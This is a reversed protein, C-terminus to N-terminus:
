FKGGSGSHRSGSSSSHTRTGGSSHHSSSSSSSSSPPIYVKSVDKYLFTDRCDTLEFSGDRFYDKAGHQMSVSTLQRKVASCYIFAIVAGGVIAYIIWKAEPMIERQSTSGYPDNSNRNNQTNQDNNQKAPPADYPKGSKAQRIYDQSINIYTDFADYYRGASLLPTVRNWMQQQGYDTYVSIGFGTGSIWRDRTNMAILMVFGDKTQHFGFGNYDYYDDAYEMPTRSGLSHLTVIVIDVSEAESISDLRELLKKEEEDSLIDGYDVLRPKQRTDPIKRQNYYEDPIGAGAAAAPLACCFAVAAAFLLAFLKRIKM